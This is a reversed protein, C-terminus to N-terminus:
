PRTRGPVDNWQNDNYNLYNSVIKPCRELLRELPVFPRKKPGLDNWFDNWLNKLSKLSAIESM